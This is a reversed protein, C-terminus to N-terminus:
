RKGTDKFAETFAQAARKAADAVQGAAKRAEDAYHSAAESLDPGLPRQNQETGRRPYEGRVIHLDTGCITTLTIRIVAEGVGAHPCDVEEIHIENIGRFINARMKGM